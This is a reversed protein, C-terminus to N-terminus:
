AANRHTVTIGEPTVDLMGTIYKQRYDAEGVHVTLNLAARYTARNHTHGALVTIQVDPNEEAIALLTLGLTGNVYYPASHDDSPLGNYLSALRFPPVHTLVLLHKAGVSIAAQARDRCAAASARALAVFAFKRETASSIYQEAYRMDTNYGRTLWALEGIEFWDNMVIPSREICGIRGDYWGDVGIMYVGDCLRVFRGPGDMYMNPSGNAWERMLRHMVEFSSGWIDHNGLVFYMPIDSAGYHMRMEGLKSRLCCSTAIDGTIVIGEAGSKRVKKGFRTVANRKITDLHTDTLWALKM